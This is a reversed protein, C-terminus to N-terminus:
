ATTSTLLQEAVEVIIEGICQCDAESFTLPLRCDFLTALIADTKPLSQRSVYQWSDYRSTYAKPDAAGFWKLEVGRQACTDVFDSCQAQDFDEISFQLSSMVPAAEPHPVPLRLGPHQKIATSMASYRANWRAANEDLAELQPRLLAARLNDMRASCNPMELRAQEFAEIPPSALHREYLMYSGSLMIARAMLNDDDSTILGGEGSNMHKYTQTSFCGFQGFTGSNRNSFQAGMTHACDEILSVDHVKLLELLANLDVLHGRMHSLMLIRAGSSQIRTELDDLDIVLNRDSEVFIARAGIAAIAGPVPALTFANTLVPDGPQCGIARLAIQMATGGSACGLCYRSGLYAAYETELLATESPESASSQNYRHLRGSRMVAVAREIALESLAEQQTFNGHFHKQTM